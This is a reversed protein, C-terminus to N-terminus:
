RSRKYSKFISKAIILKQINSTGETIPFALADRVYRHIPYEVSFGYSSYIRMATLAAKLGAECAYYKATALEGIDSIGRDKNIAVQYVLGKAAQHEVYMEVLQNQIMQFDSIPRGFQVRESAYNLGAELCAEGVGLARAAALLRTNSLTFMLIEYGEGVEGLLNEKPVKVDQLVLEGTHLCKLGVKEIKRATIGNSKRTDIIFCSMGKHKKESDTYVWILGCNANTANTIWTKTGNILYHDGRDQAVSKMATVDSGADSETAAFLAISKGSVIGPILEKKQKETGYRLVTVPPGALQCILYGAYSASIKAVEEAIVVAALYGANTGGFEEPVLCGFLGLKGMEEVIELRTIGNEYDDQAIPALQKEAFRRALEKTLRTEESFGFYM